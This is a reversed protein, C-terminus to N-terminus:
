PQAGTALSGSWVPNRAGGPHHTIRRPEAVELDLRWVDIGGARTSEFVLSRGDPSFSPRGDLGPNAAVVRADGGEANMLYVEYNGSSNGSFALLGHSSSAVDFHLLSANTIQSRDGSALDLRVIDHAQENTKTLFYLVRGDASWTPEHQLGPMRSVPMPAVGDLTAVWIDHGDRADAASFSFALRTGDPSLVADLVPHLGLPIRQEEGSDISVFFLEGQNTNVLLRRGDPFWSLRVKDTGSRTVQRPRAGDDECVWAQWFGDTLAVYALRAQADSAWLGVGIAAFGAILPPM